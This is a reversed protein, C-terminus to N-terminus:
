SNIKPPIWITQNVMPFFSNLSTRIKKNLFDLNFISSESINDLFHIHQITLFCGNTSCEGNQCPLEESESHDCCCDSKETESCCTMEITSKIQTEILGITSNGTILLPIILFLIFLQFKM